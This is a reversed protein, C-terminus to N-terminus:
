RGIMAPAADTVVATINALSINQEQLYGEMCRFINGGKSDGELYNSFVFEDTVCNVSPTFYRVFIMLVSSSGFTAEDLLLSFRSFHLESLLTKEVNQAREDIRRKV